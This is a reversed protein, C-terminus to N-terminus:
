HSAAALPGNIRERENGGGGGGGAPHARWPLAAARGSPGAGHRAESEVDEVALADALVIMLPLHAYAPPWPRSGTTATRQQQSSSHRRGSHVRGALPGRLKIVSHSGAERRWHGQLPELGHSRAGAALHPRHASPRGAGATAGQAMRAALAAALSPVQGAGARHWARQTHWGRGAAAWGAACEGEGGM